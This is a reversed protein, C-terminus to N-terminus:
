TVIDCIIISIRRARLLRGSTAISPWSTNKFPLIEASMVQIAVCASKVKESPSIVYAEPVEQVVIAKAQFRYSDDCMDMIM